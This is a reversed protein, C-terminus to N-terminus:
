NLAGSLETQHRKTILKNESPKSEENDDTINPVDSSPLQVGMCVDQTGALVARINPM